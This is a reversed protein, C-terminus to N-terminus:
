DMEFGGDVNLTQGTIYDSERSCLFAVAAAMEEPTGARMLPIRGVFSNLEEEPDLGSIKAKERVNQEWMPTRVVSPAVANVNIGYPALAMAASQTLSIIAAKSAAYQLQYARGRRGSISSFNVIKGYCRDSRGAEVVRKPIRSIMRKAAAQMAFATGRQNVDIVFDWEEPTVELFPTSKLVGAVNVLIFIGDFEEDVSDIVRYIESVDSLDLRRVTATGGAARIQEGTQEAAEVDIDAIVVRVGEAALRVAVGRGIGKGAGTVIATKGVPMKESM